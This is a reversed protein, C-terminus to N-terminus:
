AQGISPPPQERRLACTPQQGFAIADSSSSALEMTPSSVGAHLAVIM